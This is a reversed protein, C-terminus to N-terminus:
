GIARVLRDREAGIAQALADLKRIRADYVRAAAAERNRTAV